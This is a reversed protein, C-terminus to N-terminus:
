KAGHCFFVGYSTFMGESLLSSAAIACVLARSRNQPVLVVVIYVSAEDTDFPLPIPIPSTAFDKELPVLVVVKSDVVFM